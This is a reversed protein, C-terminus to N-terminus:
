NPVLVVLVNLVVPVHDLAMLILVLIEPMPNGLFVINEEIEYLFGMLLDSFGQVDTRM